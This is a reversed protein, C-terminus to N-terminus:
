KKWVYTNKFKFLSQFQHLVRMKFITITLHLKLITAFLLILFFIPLLWFRVQLPSVYKSHCFVHLASFIFQVLTLIQAYYDAKCKGSPCPISPLRFLHFIIYFLSSYPLLYDAYNYIRCYSVRTPLLLTPPFLRPPFLKPPFLTPPLFFSFFLM